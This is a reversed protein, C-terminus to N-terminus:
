VEMVITTIGPTRQLKGWIFTKLADRVESRIKAADYNTSYVIKLIREEVVQKAEELLDEHENVYIFGRTFLEPGALLEGTAQDITIAVIIIGNQALNQRDKLVVSGIDGVGLGDVMVPEAQIHEVVEFKDEGIELVDGSELIKINKEDMGMSLAIKKNAALHMPEGHVPIAYKPKLLSYIFKIDERSAHGSAHTGNVIVEAGKRVLENVVRGIAKENGPIQSSSFVIVDGADVKIKKHTGLAMRSLAAMSEGQSGTTIIVTNKPKFNKLQDIDIVTGDPIKMFGLRGAIDVAQEMSRGDIVVKRKMQHACDIVQQIRDVNSAFTAVIIRHEAYEEFIKELKAGVTRESPTYGQNMANTSDCLLALCGSNGIEAIRQLDIPAGYVPTHDIKFDGTHFICGAPSHIALASSDQISHNTKIYEVKFDGVKVVDGHNVVRLKASDLLEAEELKHEIFGMSLSTAYVPLNLERLVYPLAGIHDEHGHTIFIGKVKHINEKLYTVDPILFDIGPMEDTPFAIGCDVVIITNDTEFATMNLGVQELGGIPIIKVTGKNEVKINKNSHNPKKVPAVKVPAAKVEKVAQKKPAKTLEIKKPAKKQKEPKTAKSPKAPKLPKNKNQKSSKAPKAAMAPKSSKAPKASKTSKGAKASPKGGAAKIAKDGMLKLNKLPNSYKSM